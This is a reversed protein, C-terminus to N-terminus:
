NLYAVGSVPQNFEITLNNNDINTVSGLITDGNGDRVDVTPIKGLSHTITWLLAPIIQTHTYTRDVGGSSQQSQFQALLALLDPLNDVITSIKDYATGIYREALSTTSRHDNLHSM